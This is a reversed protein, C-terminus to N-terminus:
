PEHHLGEVKAQLFKPWKANLDKLLKLGAGIMDEAHHKMTAQDAPDLSELDILLLESLIRDLRGIEQVIVDREQPM